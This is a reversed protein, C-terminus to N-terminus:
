IEAQEVLKFTFTKDGHKFKATKSAKLEGRFKVHKSDPLHLAEFAQRVSRYLTGGVSVKQKLSRAARVEADEWTKAVAKSADRGPQRRKFIKGTGMWFETNCVHCFMRDDGAVTGEKGAMTLGNGLSGCHPCTEGDKLYQALFGAKEDDTKTVTKAIQSMPSPAAAKKPKAAPTAKKTAPAASGKAAKMGDAQEGKKVGAHGARDEAAMWANQVRVRGAAASSFRAVSEGTLHNYTELLDKTSAEAIQSKNTLIAM